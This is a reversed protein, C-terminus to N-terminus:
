VIEGKGGLHGNILWIVKMAAEVSWTKMPVAGLGFLSPEIGPAEGKFFAKYASETIFMEFRLDPSSRWPVIVYFKETLPTVAPVAM